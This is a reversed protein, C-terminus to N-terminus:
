WLGNSAMWQQIYQSVGPDWNAQGSDMFRYDGNEVYTDVDQNSLDIYDGGFQGVLAQHLEAAKEPSLGKGNASAFDMLEQQYGNGSEVNFDTGVVEPAPPAAPAVEAPKDAIDEPATRAEPAPNADMANRIQEGYAAGALGAVTGAGALGAMRIRNGEKEDGTRGETISNLEDLDVEEGSATQNAVYQQKQELDATAQQAAFSSAEEGVVGARKKNIRAGIAAGVGIGAAIGVAPVTLMGGILGVGVGTAAVGAIIGVRKFKGGLGDQNVWWDAIKSAKGSKETRETVIKAELLGESEIAMSGAEIRIHNRLEPTDEFQSFTYASYNKQVARLASTYEKRAEDLKADVKDNLWDASRRVGPIAALLKSNQLFHGLLSARHKATLEAYADRAQEWNKELEPPMQYNFDNELSEIADGPEDIIIDEIPMPEVPLTEDELVADEIDVAPDTENEGDTEDNEATDISQDDVSIVEWGYKGDAYKVLKETVGDQTRTRRPQDPAYIDQEAESEEAEGKAQNELLEKLMQKMEALEDNQADLKAKLEDIENNQAALKAELDAITKNQRERETELGDLGDAVKELVKDRTDLPTAEAEVKESQYFANYKDDPNVGQTTYKDSRTDSKMDGFDITEKINRPLRDEVILKPPTTERNPAQTASEPAM